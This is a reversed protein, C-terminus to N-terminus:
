PRSVVSMNEIKNSEEPFMRACMLALEQFRQNYSVVNTGKVKLNWMKVELKKIESRPCYKDTKKKKLNTWLGNVRAQIMITKGNEAKRCTKDCAALANDIGQDILRKLQEDTVYTTPTTTTAPTSRTTRKPAM